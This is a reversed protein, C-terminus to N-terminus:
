MSCHQRSKGTSVAKLCFFSCFISVFRLGFFKDFKYFLDGIDAPGGTEDCLKRFESKISSLSPPLSLTKPKNNKQGKMKAM